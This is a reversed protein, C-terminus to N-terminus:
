GGDRATDRRHHEDGRALYVTSVPVGSPAAARSGECCGTFAAEVHTSLAPRNNM